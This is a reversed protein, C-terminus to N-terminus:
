HAEKSIEAAIKEIEELSLGVSKVIIDINVGNKLLNTAAEIAKIERNEPM